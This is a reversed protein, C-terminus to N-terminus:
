SNLIGVTCPSLILSHSTSRWILNIPHKLSRWVCRRMHSKAMVNHVSFFSCCRRGWINTGQVCSPDPNRCSFRFGYLNEMLYLTKRLMNGEVLGVFCFESVSGPQKFGGPSVRKPTSLGPSQPWVLHDPASLFGRAGPGQCDRNRRRPINEVNM